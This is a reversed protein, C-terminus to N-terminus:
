VVTPQIPLAPAAPAYASAQPAAYPNVSGAGFPNSSAAASGGENFLWDKKEPTPQAPGVPGPAFLSGAPVRNIAGCDPCRADKGASEDSVRLLKQCGTCSFEIPM